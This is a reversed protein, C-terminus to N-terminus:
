GVMPAQNISLGVQLSPPVRILQQRVMPWCRYCNLIMTLLTKCHCYTDTNTYDDTKHLNYHLDIYPSTNAGHETTYLEISSSSNTRTLRTHETAHHSTRNPNQRDRVIQPPRTPSATTIYTNPQHQSLTSELAPRTKTQANISVYQESHVCGPYINSARVWPAQARRFHNFEQEEM